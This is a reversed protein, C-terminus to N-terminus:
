EGLGRERREQLAESQKLAKELIVDIRLFDALTLVVDYKKEILRVIKNTIKGYERM